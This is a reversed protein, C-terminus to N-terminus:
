LKIVFRKKVYVKSLFYALKPAPFPLCLFFVLFDCCIRLFGGNKAFKVLLIPRNKSKKPSKACIRNNKKCFVLMKLLVCDCMAAAFFEGCM